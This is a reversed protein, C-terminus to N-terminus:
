LIDHLISINLMQKEEIHYLNLIIDKFRLLNRRSRCSYFANETRLEILRWLLKHM